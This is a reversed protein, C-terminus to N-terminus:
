QYAYKGFLFMDDTADGPLLGRRLLDEGFCGATSAESIRTRLAM